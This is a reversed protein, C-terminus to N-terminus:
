PIVSSLEFLLTVALSCFLLEPVFSGVVSEPFPLPPPFEEPLPMWVRFVLVPVPLEDLLVLEEEWFLLELECELFLLELWFWFVGELPVSSFGDLPFLFETILSPSSFTGSVGLLSLGPVVCSGSLGNEFLLLLLLAFLLPVIFLLM